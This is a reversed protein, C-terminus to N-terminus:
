EFLDLIGLEMQRKGKREQEGKGEKQEAKYTTVLVQLTKIVDPNLTGEVPWPREIGPWWKHWKKSIKAICTILPNNRQVIELPTTGKTAKCKKRLM